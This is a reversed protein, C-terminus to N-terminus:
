RTKKRKPWNGRYGLKERAYADFEPAWVDVDVEVPGTPAAWDHAAIATIFEPHSELGCDDWCWWALGPMGLDQAAKNFEDLEAVTPQWGHERFASGVPVVPLDRIATLERASKRLQAGPDHAQIWYVQPAHFDAFHTFDRWPIEPHYSPYRYSCLGIPLDPFSARVASMYTNAWASSGKRKYQSEPDVIWGAPGYRQINRIAVAAESKAISAGTVINGGYIYHWGWPEVGAMGFAEFAAGALSTNYDAVGNALKIAVWSFGVAKARRALEAM